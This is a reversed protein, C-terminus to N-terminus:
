YTILYLDKETLIPFDDLLTGMHQSLDWITIASNNQIIEDRTWCSDLYKPVFDWGIARKADKVWEEASAMALGFTVTLRENTKGTHM